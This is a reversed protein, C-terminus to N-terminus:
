DTLPKLQFDVVKMQNSIDSIYDKVAIVISDKELTFFDEKNQIISGAQITLGNRLFIQKGTPSYAQM